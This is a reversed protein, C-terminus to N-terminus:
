QIRRGVRLKAGARQPFPQGDNHEEALRQVERILAEEMLSGISWSGGLAIVADRVQDAVESSIYGAFKVVKPAADGAAAATTTAPTTEPAPGRAGLVPDVDASRTLRPAPKSLSALAEPDPASPSRRRTPPM